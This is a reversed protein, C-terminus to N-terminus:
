TDLIGVTRLCSHRCNQSLISMREMELEKLIHTIKDWTEIGRRDAYRDPYKIVKVDTKISNEPGLVITSAKTMLKQAQLITEEAEGEECEILIADHIPAIIKIGNEVLLICAVRLIEAGTAQCPFNKITRAEKQEKGIVYMQWGFCTTIKRNLLTTDLVHESWEWYKFFVRKHHHILEKGYPISKGIRLALSEAGMGYQVGLVCQKFLDRVAVHTAKTAEEPAAGAKKAFSLYPDGSAYAAKMEEDKSLAAAIMFEQQSYDVYALVKGKEPKILSRLWVAPGFIFKSTSPQNRGTKSAFPSLLCRNRSDSGVPLESLRLQGLIYRLDKLGQLQPYRLCMEKFTDDKMELNGKETRPWAIGNDNLYKEFKNIKFVTGEYVGFDRDIELILKEQIQIWNEKLATLTELDIPIGGYEMTAVAGMYRGRLLARDTDFNPDEKMTEFLEATEFVDSACYEMIYCKEEETYPPGRMIRQRASEKELESITTVGYHQCAGLLKKSVGPLGNTMNRFEAYLDIVNEPLPWGLALHCNWEASSFYAVFLDSESIPYPPTLTLPDKGELWVKKTEGSNIEHFVVCVPKQREGPDSVFEFDVVFINKFPFHM